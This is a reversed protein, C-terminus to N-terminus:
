QKNDENLINELVKASSLVGPLGAGPHTGAGVFYLSRVDESQNHFRFYASQKFIPTISFGSGWESLYDEQFSIPSKYFAHVLHQSLHPLMTEELRKLVLEQFHPGVTEWDTTSKLNPVPALVYFTDSGEPALSKDTATPRHLYLSVDESLHNRIFIDDLLKKYEKGMVITHHPVEPYTRNTGFYIVFLGMSYNLRNLARNAWKCRMSADILHRYTYAPDGNVVVLDAPLIEGSKLRVGTAQKKEVIIKDVTQELRITIEEEQMLQGLAQVLQGTGGKPFHVGWERELYHILAYISTTQFPNGGVFLPQISFAKRLEPDKIFSAILSYVTKYSKLRILSPILKLMTTFRHFPKDALQTFGVDFIRQSFALLKKYGQQDESNFHGIQNLTHQLSDGYEFMRGDDFRFQYWTKLPIFPIYDERKKGFLQFLEDFLFPATIVTPGADYIHGERQFVQARGGLLPMKDVLSVQYGQAKLRLAAAMGGFGAGIVVATPIKKIQGKV